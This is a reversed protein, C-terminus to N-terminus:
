WPQALFYCALTLRKGPTGVRGRSVSSVLVLGSLSPDTRLFLCLFPPSPPRRNQAQRQAPGDVCMTQPGSIGEQDGDWPSIASPARCVRFAARGWAQFGYSRAPLQVSQRILFLPDRSRVAEMSLEHKPKPTLNATVSSPLSFGKQRTMPVRKLSLWFYGHQSPTRDPFPLTGGM